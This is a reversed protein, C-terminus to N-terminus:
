LKKVLGFAWEGIEEVRFRVEINRVVLPTIIFEGKLTDGLHIPGPIIQSLPAIRHTKEGNLVRISADNESEFESFYEVVIKTPELYQPLPDFHINGIHVTKVPERPNPLREAYCPVPNPLSQSFSDAYLLLAIIIACLLLSGSTKV